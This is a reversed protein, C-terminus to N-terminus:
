LHGIFRKEYKEFQEMDTAFGFKPTIVPKVKLFENKLSKPIAQTPHTISISRVMHQINTLSPIEGDEARVYDLDNDVLDVDGCKCVPGAVTQHCFENGGCQIM